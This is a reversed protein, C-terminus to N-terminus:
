EPAHRAVITIQVAVEEIGAGGCVHRGLAAIGESVLVAAPQWGRGAFGDHM